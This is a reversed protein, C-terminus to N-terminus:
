EETTALPRTIGDRARSPGSSEKIASRRKVRTIRNFEM